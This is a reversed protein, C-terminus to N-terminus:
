RSTTIKVIKGQANAVVRIIRPLTHGQATKVSTKYILLYQTQTQGEIKPQQRVLPKLALIEPFRQAIKKHLAQRIKEDM